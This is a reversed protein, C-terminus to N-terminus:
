GLLAMASVFLLVVMSSPDFTRAAPWASTAL